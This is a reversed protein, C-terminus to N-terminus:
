GRILRGALLTGTMALCEMDLFRGASERYLISCAAPFLDDRDNFNLVVPVKPLALFQMSCDYVSNEQEVGGLALCIRRLEELKGGFHTEITKNTNTTFSYVLPSADRFDRFARWPDRQLEIDKQCHLVYRALIVRVAPITEGGVEDTIGDASLRYWHDYLRIVLSDGDRVAGLMEAKALYDLNRIEALYRNYTETFVRAYKM